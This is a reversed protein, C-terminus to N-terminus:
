VTLDNESKFHIANNLLIQLTAAFVAVVIPLAILFCDILILGPADDKEAVYYVYPLGLLYIGSIFWACIKINKLAMVSVNSFAINEDIYRLLKFGQFLAIFFPISSIAVGTTIPRFQGIKDSFFSIYLFYTSLCLAALGILIITLKLFLIPGRHTNSAQNTKM